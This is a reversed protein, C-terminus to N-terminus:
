EKEFFGKVVKEAQAMTYQEDTLIARLFDQQYTRSFHAILAERSFAKGADPKKSAM